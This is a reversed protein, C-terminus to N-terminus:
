SLSVIRFSKPNSGEAKVLIGEIYVYTTLTIRIRLVCCFCGFTRKKYFDLFFENAICEVKSRWLFSFSYYINTKM